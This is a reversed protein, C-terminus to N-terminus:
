KHQPNIGLKKLHERAFSAIIRDPSACLQKFIASAQKQKGQKSYTIGLFYTAKDKFPSQSNQIKKFGDIAKLNKNALQYLLARYYDVTDNKATHHKSKLDIIDLAGIYDGKRYLFMVMEMTNHKSISMYNPLGPDQYQTTFEITNQRSQMFLYTGLCLLLIAAYPLWKQLTSTRAKNYIPSLIAKKNAQMQRSIAQTDGKLEDYLQIFGKSADDIEQNERHKEIIEKLAEPSSLLNIFVLLYSEKM